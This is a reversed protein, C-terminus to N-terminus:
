RIDKCAPCSWTYGVKPIRRKVWGKIKAEDEIRDVTQGIGNRDSSSLEMPGNNQDSHCGHPGRVDCRIEIWFGM